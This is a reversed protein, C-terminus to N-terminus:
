HSTKIVKSALKHHTVNTANNQISALVFNGPKNGINAKKLINPGKINNTTDNFLQDAKAITYIKKRIDKQGSALQLRKVGPNSGTLKYARKGAELLFLILVILKKM